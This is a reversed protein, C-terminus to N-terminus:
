SHSLMFFTELQEPVYGTVEIVYWNVAILYDLKENSLFYEMGYANEFVSCIKVGEDLKFIQGREKGKQEFFVFVPENNLFMSYSFENSELPIKLAKDGISLHGNIKFPQYREFAKKIYNSAYESSIVSSCLMLERSSRILEDVKNM